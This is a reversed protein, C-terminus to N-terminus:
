FPPDNIINAVPKGVKKAYKRCEFTGGKESGNWYAMVADSNDVMWHNRTHLMGAAEGRSGPEGESVIHIVDAYELVEAYLLKWEAGPVSHKAWPRAATIPIGVNMAAKGALLDFGAAMGCVFRDVKRLKVEAKIIVSGYEEAIGDPRHGTGCVIM